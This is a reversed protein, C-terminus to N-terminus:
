LAAAAPGLTPLPDVGGVWSTPGGSGGAICDKPDGGEERAEVGPVAPVGTGVGAAEDAPDAAAEGATEADGVAPPSDGVMVSSAGDAVGGAAGVPATVAAGVAAAALTPDPVGGLGRVFSSTSCNVLLYTM